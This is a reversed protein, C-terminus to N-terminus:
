EDDGIHHYTKGNWEWKRKLNIQWKRNVEEEIGKEWFLWSIFRAIRPFWRYIGICVIQIDAREKRKEEPTKARFFECIEEIVKRFQSMPTANPFLKEHEKAMKKFDLM